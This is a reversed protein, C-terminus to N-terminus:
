RFSKGHKSIEENLKKHKHDELKAKWVMYDQLRKFPMMMCEAYSQKSMEMCTYVNENLEEKYSIIDDHQTCHVFFAKWWISIMFM